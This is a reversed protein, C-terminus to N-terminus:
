RKTELHHLLQQTFTMPDIPKRVFASCGADLAMRETRKGNFATVAFIAIDRTSPDAKLRQAFLLGSM